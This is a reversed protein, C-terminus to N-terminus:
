EAKHWKVGTKTDEIEYGMVRIEQRIKDAAEFRREVRLKERLKALELARRPIVMSEEKPPLSLNLGLVTDFSLATEYKLPKTVKEDNLLEWLVSLAKTFNLNDNLANIFEEKYDSRIQGNESNLSSVKIRLRTLAKQAADLSEWTFSLGKQYNSSLVLYRLALPDYGKIILDTVLINTKGSSKSVKEGGFTLWENHLWYNATQQGFAGYAQAIENSHHVPIHEKGGTHIDFRKGLYKTSMATCELHWGPFGKGWPSDWQMIHNPQNTVWLLFNWPQRKEIDVETRAGAQQDKNNLKAFKAYDLFKSTDYVLGVNTKYAFGNKEIARALDVQEQIHETARALVDPHVDLKNLSDTFQAIYKDAIQWVSLGERRAGKEMKDEGEDADSTNHGVDTINMVWKVKYGQYRLARVM